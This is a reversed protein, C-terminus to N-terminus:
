PAADQDPPGGDSPGRAGSLDRMFLDELSPRLPTVSVVKAADRGLRKLIRQQPPGEPVRLLWQGGLQQVEDALEGLEGAAEDSIEEARIEVRDVHRDLLDQVGGTYHLRGHLLIGIRDCILEVDSLIHSSFFVTRGETRMQLILNRILRRGAPDLGSMPEDLVVLAPDNVLAQAVGIRQLMGKSYTRLQADADGELEVAELLRQIRKKRERSPLGFLQAYFDLFEAGTLYDYFYPREPLFGVQALGAPEGIRHGLIVATGETPSALGMLMKITTTKGAGNHGVFGFIGGRPVDLDLSELAVKRRRLLGTRFVKRLGRVAIALEGDMPRQANPPETM